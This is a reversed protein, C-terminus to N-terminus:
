RVDAPLLSWMVLDVRDGRQDAWARLVGERTFGAKVAVRQSAANDLHTTLQLRGIPLAELAWRSVLRLAAGALGRGRAAAAVHYGVEAAGQEHLVRVGISGAAGDGPLEAIAFAVGDGAALRGPHLALWIRADDEDYSEPITTFRVVDPDHCMAVLGPVDDDRWARLRVRDDALPPDPMVIPRRRM